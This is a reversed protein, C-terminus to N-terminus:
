SAEKPRRGQKAPSRGAVVGPPRQRTPLAAYWQQRRAETVDPAEDPAAEDFLHHRHRCKAGPLVPAASVAALLSDLTSM